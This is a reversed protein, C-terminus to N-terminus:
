ASSPSPPRAQPATEQLDFAALQHVPLAPVTTGYVYGCVASSVADFPLGADALCARAAEAGLAPYDVELSKPKVFPTQGVGIVFTRVM